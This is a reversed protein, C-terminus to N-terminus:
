ASIEPPQFVSTSEFPSVSFVYPFFHEQEVEYNSFEFKIEQSILQIEVEKVLSQLPSKQEKKDEEEM